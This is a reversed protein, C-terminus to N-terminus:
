YKLTAGAQIKNPDTIGNLAALKTVTTGYRAALAGLTDGYKITYTGTSTPAPATTTTTPAPATTTTTTKPATTTTPAAIPNSLTPTGSTATSTSPAPTISNFRTGAATGSVSDSSPASSKINTSNAALKTNYAATAADNQNQLTGTQFQTRAANIDAVGLDTPTVTYGIVAGTVPDYKRQESAPSAGPSSGTMYNQYLNSRYNGNEDVVTAIYAQIDSDSMNPYKAKLASFSMASRVSDSPILGWSKALEPNSAAFAKIQEPTAFKMYYDMQTKETDSKAGTRANMDAQRIKRLYADTAENQLGSGEIGQQGFQNKLTQVQDWAQFADDALKINLNTEINKKLTSWNYQAAQQEQETKANMQQQLVDFYATNIKEMASQYEPTGPKLQPVMVNVAENPLSMIGSNAAGEPLIGPPLTYPDTIGTNDGRPLSPNIIPSNPDPVQGTQIFSKSVPGFYGANGSVPIGNQQQWMSVAATTQPGYIGPGTNMQAQTMYGAAVLAQQLAQVQAPDNQLGPGLNGTVSALVSKDLPKYQSTSLNTYGSPATPQPSPPVYSSTPTPSTTTTTRPQTTTTSSSTSTSGAAAITKPGWYGPGSSYDIGKAKQYALVAATTQPGYIGYGSQVQTRTMFGQSVLYDQLQKVATTNTSGPQLATTPYM